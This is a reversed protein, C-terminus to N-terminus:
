KPEPIRLTLFEHWGRELAALSPPMGPLRELSEARPAPDARYRRVLERVAATGGTERIYRLLSYSLPYFFEVEVPRPGTGHPLSDTWSVTTDIRGSVHVSISDVRYKAKLSDPRWDCSGRCPSETTVQSTQVPDVMASRETAAPREGAVPHLMEALMRLSPRADAPVQALRRTRQNAPEAWVAWAEDLWDPAETGYRYDPSISTGGRMLPNLWGHGIEHWFTGAIGHDHPSDIGRPFLESRAWAMGWTTDGRDDSRFLAGDFLTATGAMPLTDVLQAFRDVLHQCLERKPGSVEGLASITCLSADASDSAVSPACAALAALAAAFVPTSIRM